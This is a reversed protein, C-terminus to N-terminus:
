SLTKPKEAKFHRNNRCRHYCCQSADPPVNHAGRGPIHRHKCCEPEYNHDAYLAILKAITDEKSPPTSAAPSSSNSSTDLIPKADTLSLQSEKAAQSSETIVVAGKIDSEMTSGTNVELKEHVVEYTKSSEVEVTSDVDIVEVQDTVSEGKKDSQSSFKVNALAQNLRSSPFESYLERRKEQRRLYSSNRKKGSTQPSCDYKPPPRTLPPPMYGLSVDLSVKVSGNETTLKLSASYGASSLYKFQNILSELEDAAM